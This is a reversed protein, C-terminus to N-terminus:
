RRREDEAQVAMRSWESLTDQARETAERWAQLVQEGENEWRDAAEAPDLHKVSDFWASWLQSQADTWGKMMQQVQSAWRGVVEPSGDGDSVRDAWNHVWQTQADLAQRVSKEWADLNKHYSQKWVDAGKASQGGFSNVAQLWSDWMKHQMDTWTGVMEEMQKNWGM